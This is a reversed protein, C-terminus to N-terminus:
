ISMWEAQIGGASNWWGVSSPSRLQFLPAMSWLALYDSWLNDLGEKSCILRGQKDRLNPPVPRGRKRQKSGLGFKALAGHLQQPKVEGLEKLFGRLAAQKSLKIQHRMWGACYGIAVGLLEGIFAIRRVIAPIMGTGLRWTQVAASKLMSALARPWGRHRMKVRLKLERM